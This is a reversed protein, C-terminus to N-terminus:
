LTPADRHAAVWDEVIQRMLTSAGVGRAAAAAELERQVDM